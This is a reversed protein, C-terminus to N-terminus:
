REILKIYQNVMKDISFFLSVRGKNKKGVEIRIEPNKLLFIIKEAFEVSNNPEVLFEYNEGLAERSGLFDTAVIPLSASMPELIGNPVGENKSSFVALCCQSLLYPIDRVLGPFEIFDIVGLKKAETLCEMYSNGHSGALILRFDPFEKLVKQWTRILTLHDKYSHINGIMVINKSLKETKMFRRHDIGNSILHIPKVTFKKLFFLGELSNSVIVDANNLSLIDLGKGNFFRGEERQNWFVSKVNIWKKLNIFIVNPPYTFPIVTDLNLSRLQWILKVNFRIKKFYKKWGNSPSLFIKESFGWHLCTLGSNKFRELGEGRDSGFAGIIVKYGISNLGLALYLAQTEAGGISFRHLAILITKRKGITKL